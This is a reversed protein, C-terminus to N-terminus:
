ESPTGTKLYYETRSPTYTARSFRTPAGGPCGACIYHSCTDRSVLPIPTIPPWLSRSVRIQLPVRETSPARAYLSYEDCTFATKDLRQSTHVGYGQVWNHGTEWLRQRAKVENCMYSLIEIHLCVCVWTFLPSLSCHSSCSHTCYYHWTAKIFSIFFVCSFILDFWLLSVM